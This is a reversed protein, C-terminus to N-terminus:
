GIDNVRQRSSLKVYIMSGKGVPQSKGMVRVRHRSPCKKGMAKFNQRIPLKVLITLEKGVPYNKGMRYFNQM